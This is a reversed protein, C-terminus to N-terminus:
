KDTLEWHYGKYIHGCRAAKSIRSAVIDSDSNCVVHAADRLSKFTMNLELCKILKKAVFTHKNERIGYNNIWSHITSTSRGYEVAIESVKMYQLKSILQEKTPKPSKGKLKVNYCSTCLNDKFVGQRGCQVCNMSTDIKNRAQLGLKRLAARISAETCNYIKALQTITYYKSINVLEQTDIKYTNKSNKNILHKTSYMIGDKIECHFGALYDMKDLSSNFEIKNYFVDELYQWRYGSAIGNKTCATKITRYFNREDVLPEDNKYRINNVYNLAEKISSFIGVRKWEKTYGILAKAKSTHAIETQRDLDKVFYRISENKIKYKINIDVMPMGNIYDNRINTIITDYKNKGTRRGGLQNNYGNFYTDYKAIYYIEKTDLDESSCNEIIKYEFNQIGLSRMEVDIETNGRLHQKVREELSQVTQGIYMRGSKKNKIYYICAM